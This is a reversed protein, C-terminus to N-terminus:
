QFRQITQSSPIRIQKTALNRGWQNSADKTVEASTLTSYKTLPTPFRSGEGPNTPSNEPGYSHFCTTSSRRIQVKQSWRQLRSMGMSFQIWLRAAPCGLSLQRSVWQHRLGGM